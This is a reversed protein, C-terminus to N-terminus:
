SGKKRLADVFKILEITKDYDANTVPQWPRNKGDSLKKFAEPDKTPMDLFAQKIKAKMDDPLSELYAYPSNIILDSKVIIRFDEKKLPTGDSSKVMNKALMRTLNSDDDANWWNAAVDVTGQALALVANEHSGTFVVKSFYTEPDIGMQNLKFRPMNNGSTSNPDVLGINKGKLDEVKQYPSKALVYFVSYYGKSGDANVDIVFADTKVGTLRARAFSAPGYYGIHINGARQGEIVAAYDNAVRLTVKIGLEKSLYETLPGYRETVGSGNEAPIVAFTIEPYKTKWDEASASGAFALAAAGALIIRRTIM